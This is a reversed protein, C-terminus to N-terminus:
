LDFSQSFLKYIFIVVWVSVAVISFLIGTSSFLWSIFAFKELVPPISVLKPDDPIPIPLEIGIPSPIAKSDPLEPPRTIPTSPPTPSLAESTVNEVFLKPPVAKPVVFVVVM